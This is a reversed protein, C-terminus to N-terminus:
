SIYISVMKTNKKYENIKEQWRFPSIHLVIKRSIIHKQLLFQIFVVFYFIFVNCNCSEKSVMRGGGQALGKVVSDSLLLLQKRALRNLMLGVRDDAKVLRDQCTGLNVYDWILASSCFLASPGRTSGMGGRSELVCVGIWVCAPFFLHLSEWDCVCMKSNAASHKTHVIQAEAVAILTRRAFHQLNLHHLKPFVERCIWM